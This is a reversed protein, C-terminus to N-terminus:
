DMDRVDPYYPSFTEPLWPRLPRVGLLYDIRNLAGRAFHPLFRDSADFPSTLLTAGEGWALNNAQRLLEKWLELGRPGEALHNFLVCYRIPDGLRPIRPLPLLPRLAECLPRALSYSWPLRIVRMGTVRNIRFLGISAFSDGARLRYCSFLGTRKMEPTLYRDRFVAPALQRSGYEARMRAAMGGDERDLDVEEAPRGARLPRFVPRSVVAVRGAFRYGARKRQLAMMPENDGKVLGYILHAGSKEAWREMENWVRLMHRGLATRRYDPHVRLDYFFVAPVERGGVAVEKRTAAMVGILRGQARDVAVLTHHNGYLTSRFFYDERESYLALRTGQPCSRELEILPPNDGPLAPRVAEGTM